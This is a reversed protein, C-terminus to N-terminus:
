TSCDEPYTDDDAPENAPPPTRDHRIALRLLGVVLGGMILVVVVFVITAAGRGRPAAADATAVMLAGTAIM